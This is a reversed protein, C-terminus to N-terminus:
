RVTKKIFIQMLNDVPLIEIKYSKQLLKKLLVGNNQNLYVDVIESPKGAVIQGVNQGNKVLEILTNKYSSKEDDNIVLYLMSVTDIKSKSIASNTNQLIQYISDIPSDNDVVHLLQEKLEIFSAQKKINLLVNNADRFYHYLLGHSCKAKECIMDVSVKDGYLAFLPLAASLISQKREDKIQKNIDNTRPM